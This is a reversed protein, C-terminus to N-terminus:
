ETLVVPLTLAIERFIAILTAADPAHYHNGGTAAAVAQMDAQNAQDAFTITHIVIDEEAADYAALVPDRGANWNGDTMLVMTKYAFPRATAENTLAVVGNDIGASINTNGNFVSASLVDMATMVLSPTLTLQQNIDANTNFVGAWTGQSAYSVLGVQEIMPTEDLADIFEEVAEYLAGWRSNDMDPPLPFRPDSTSMNVSDGEIMLKMSSSRDVVLMLDRDLRVATAVQTPEFDDVGLTRAFFLPVSGMFSGDTRQANVRVSNIPESGASFTWSGDVQRESNGFVIDGDQLLLPQGAVPNAAALTQAANRALDVDQYRSLGDAAARAAADTSRRLETRVLHMYAIDVSFAATALFLPLLLAILVLM